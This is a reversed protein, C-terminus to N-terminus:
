TTEHTADYEKLVSEVFQTRATEAANLRKWVRKRREAQEKRHRKVDTPASFHTIILLGLIFLLMILVAPFSVTIM